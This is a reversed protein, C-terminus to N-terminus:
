RAIAAKGCIEGYLACTWIVLKPRSRADLREKPKEAIAPIPVGKWVSAGAVYSPISM